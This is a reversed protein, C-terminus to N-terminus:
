HHSALTKKEACNCFTTCCCCCFKLEQFATERRPFLRRGSARACVPTNQTPIKPNTHNTLAQTHKHTDTLTQSHRRTDTLTQSHRHTDTPAQTHRRTDTLTQSHRHTGTPAQTHSRTSPTSAHAQSVFRIKVKVKTFKYKFM